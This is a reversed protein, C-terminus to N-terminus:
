LFVTRHKASGAACSALEVADIGALGAVQGLWWAGGHRPADPVTYRVRGPAHRLWPIAAVLTFPTIPIAAFGAIALLMRRHQPKWFPGEWIERKLRPHRRVLRAIEGVRRRELLAEEWTRRHVAHYVLAEPVWVSEAGRALVRQGLDTDEGYIDFRMDFGGVGELLARPYLVNCTSFRGDHTEIRMSRDFVSHFPGDEPDPITKGVLVRNPTAYAAFSSLWDASPRCDDDTFAVYDSTALQWGRQRARGPGGPTENRLVRMPLRSEFESLVDVIPVTSADDTLILEDPPRKQSAMADLCRRLLAPRDRTAMVVAITM